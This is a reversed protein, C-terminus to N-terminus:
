AVIQYITYTHGKVPNTITITGKETSTTDGTAGVPLAMALVMILALVISALKKM